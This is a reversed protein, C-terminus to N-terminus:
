EFPFRYQHLGQEDRMAILERQLAPVIPAGRDRRAQEALYEKEGHTYIRERGPAKRSARLARLIDGTTKKFDAPDTFAAIDMAMFFHGLRYPCRRGEADLGTLGQMYAGQQLAASLIEVVAAFGYGKHGGTEEALGGIPALAAAGRSLQELIQVPDTM